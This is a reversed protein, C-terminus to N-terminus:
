IFFFLDLLFLHNEQREKEQHQWLGAQLLVAEM